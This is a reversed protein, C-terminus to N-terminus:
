RINSLGEWASQIIQKTTFEPQWDLFKKALQIDAVLIAPDGERAKVPSIKIKHGVVEETASIIELVSRGIGSGLNIIKHESKSLNGLALEYARALDLVHLYDRICSGDPTPYDLGFVKFDSGKVSQLLNPVLHTEISRSENIWNGLGNQYSGSINFFRFSIAALGNSKAVEGILNDAKLKSIGYPSIPSTSSKESIPIQEPQGYVACTSSFIIKEISMAKMQDLINRTGETNVKYYLDANVISEGVLSKAAFHFVATVGQMSNSLIPTDLINGQFFTARQDVNSLSGSSLDDIINVQYGRDLFYSSIVSGIYGAGGTILLKDKM